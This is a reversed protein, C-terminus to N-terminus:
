VEVDVLLMVAMFNVSDPISITELNECGKFAGDHIKNLTNPLVVSKLKKCDLFENREIEKVGDPIVFNILEENASEPLIGVGDIVKNTVM